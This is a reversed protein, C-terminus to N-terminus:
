PKSRALIAAGARGTTAEELLQRMFALFKQKEMYAQEVHPGHFAGGARRWMERIEEDSISMPDCVGARYTSGM